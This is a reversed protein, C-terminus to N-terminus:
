TKDITHAIGCGIIMGIYTWNDVEQSCDCILPKFYSNFYLIMLMAKKLVSKSKSNAIFPKPKDQCSEIKGEKGNKVTIKVVVQLKLGIPEM